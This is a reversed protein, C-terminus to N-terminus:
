AGNFAVFDVVRADLVRGIAQLLPRPGALAKQGLQLPDSENDLILVLRLM